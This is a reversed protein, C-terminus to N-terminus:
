KPQKDQKRKACDIAVAVRLYIACLVALSGITPIIHEM